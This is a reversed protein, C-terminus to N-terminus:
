YSETTMIHQVIGKPEGGLRPGDSGDILTGLPPVIRSPHSSSAERKKADFLAPRVGLSRDGPTNGTEMYAVPKAEKLNGNGM